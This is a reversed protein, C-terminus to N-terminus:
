KGVKKSLQVDLLVFLHSCSNFFLFLLIGPCKGDDYQLQRLTKFFYNKFTRFSSILYTLHLLCKLFGRSQHKAYKSKLFGRQLYIFNNDCLINLQSVLIVELAPLIGMNSLTKFFADRNQPQLTQSFACFEKLFNVQFLSDGCYNIIIIFIYIDRQLLQGKWTCKVSKKGIGTKEGWRHSWRNTTCVLRDSIKWRGVFAFCYWKNIQCYWFADM